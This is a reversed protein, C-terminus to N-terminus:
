RCSCPTCPWGASRTRSSAAGARDVVGGRAASVRFRGFSGGDM